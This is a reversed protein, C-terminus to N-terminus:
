SFDVSMKAQIISGFLQIKFIFTISKDRHVIERDILFRFMGEDFTFAEEKPKSLNNIFAEIQSVKYIKDARELLLENPKEKTNIFNLELEAYKKEIITPSKM